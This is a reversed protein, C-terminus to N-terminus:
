DAAKVHIVQGDIDVDEWNLSFLESPGVRMSLGGTPKYNCRRIVLPLLSKSPRDWNNSSEMIRKTKGRGNLPTIKRMKFPLPM